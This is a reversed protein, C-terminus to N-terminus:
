VRARKRLLTVEGAAPPSYSCYDAWMSMLKRREDLLDSRAYARSSKSGTVHALARECVEHPFATRESAWDRFTSRFGHPTIGERVRALARELSDKGLARGGSRTFVHEGDRPLAKLLAVAQPSLPVRHPKGGKMRTGPITWVSSELDIEVVSVGSDLEVKTNWAAGRIEGSRAACLITFELARADTGDRQRLEAMFAPIEAYPLAAFHKISTGNRAPLLHEIHGSWRAPNDGARQDRVTAYDLAAEIRQRVRAATEPITTWIPELCRLVLGTDISGVPLRGIAPFVHRELSRIYEKAHAASRWGSEMSKFHSRAAQEFTTTKAAELVAKAKAARKAEIPDTGDLLQRRAAKAKERALKLSVIDLPGIGLMREHDGREYRLIWSAAGASAIQLYLGKVAGDPHRGIQKKSVLRAIKRATLAM